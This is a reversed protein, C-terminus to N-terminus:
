ISKFQCSEVLLGRLLNPRILNLSLILLISTRFARFLLATVSNRLSSKRTKSEFQDTM